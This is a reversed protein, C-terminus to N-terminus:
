ETSRNASPAAIPLGTARIIAQAIPHNPCRIAVTPGCATVEDPVESRKPVVITLPGPWFRSALREATEPWMSAANVVQASDAVHVILPNSSPRGKAEFIRRVALPDLANAGLGYVTETPFAVLRGSRLLQAAREISTSQQDPRGITLIETNM